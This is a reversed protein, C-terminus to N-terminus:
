GTLALMATMIWCITDDGAAAPTAKLRSGTDPLGATATMVALTPNPSTHVCKEPVQKEFGYYFNYM